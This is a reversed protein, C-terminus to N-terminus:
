STMSTPQPNYASDGSSETREYEPQQEKVASYDNVFAFTNTYEPNKDGAARSNGPCLYCQLNTDTDNERCGLMSVYKPTM